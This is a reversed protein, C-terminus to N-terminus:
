MTHSGRWMSARTLPLRGKRCCMWIVKVHVLSGCSVATHLYQEHLCLSTAFWAEARFRGFSVSWICIVPEVTTESFWCVELVDNLCVVGKGVSHGRSVQGILPWNSFEINLWFVKFRHIREDVREKAANYGSARPRRRSICKQCPLQKLHAHKGRLKWIFWNDHLHIPQCALAAATVNLGVHVLRRFFDVPSPEDTFLRKVRFTQSM